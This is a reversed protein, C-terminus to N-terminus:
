TSGPMVWLGFFFFFIRLTIELSTTKGLTTIEELVLYGKRAGTRHAAYQSIAHQALSVVSLGAKWMTVGHVLDSGSLM